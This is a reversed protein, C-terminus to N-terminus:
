FLLTMYMVFNKPSDTLDGPYTNNRYTFKAVTGIPPASGGIVDEGWKTVGAAWFRLNKATYYTMKVVTNVSSFSHVAPNKFTVIGTTKNINTIIGLEDTNTGDTVKLEFGLTGYMLLAPPASLTTDGATINTTILGLTTDPNIAITFDDGRNTDDTVFTFSYMSVPIDFTFYQDQSTQSEVNIFEIHKLWVNRAIIIKDEKVSVVDSSIVELVQISDLNVSHSNNNYCTIPSEQSWGEVYKNETNCYIKYKSVSM